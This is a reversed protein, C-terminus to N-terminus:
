KTKKTKEYHSGAELIPSGARALNDCTLFSSSQIYIQPSTRITWNIQLHTKWFLHLSFSGQGVFSSVCWLHRWSYDTWGKIVDGARKTLTLGAFLVYPCLGGPLSSFIRTWQPTFYLSHWAVARLIARPRARKWFPRTRVRPCAHITKGHDRLRYLYFSSRLDQGPTNESIAQSEVRIKAYMSQTCIAM